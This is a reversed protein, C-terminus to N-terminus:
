KNDQWYKRSIWYKKYKGKTVWTIFIVFFCFGFWIKLFLIDTFSIWGDPNLFGYGITVLSLLLIHSLLPSINLKRAIFILLLNIM